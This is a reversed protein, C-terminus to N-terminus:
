RIDARRRDLAEIQGLLDLPKLHGLRSRAPRRRPSARAAGAARARNDERRGQCPSERGVEEATNDGAM